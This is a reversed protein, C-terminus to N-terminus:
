QFSKVRIRIFRIRLISIHAFPLCGTEFVPTDSLAQPNLDRQRRKRMSRIGCHATWTCISKLSCIIDASICFPLPLRDTFGDGEPKCTRIRNQRSDPQIGSGFGYIALPLTHLLDYAPQKSLLQARFPVRTRIGGRDNQRRPTITDCLIALGEM